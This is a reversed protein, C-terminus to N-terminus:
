PRVQLPLGARGGVGVEARQLIGYGPGQHVHGLLAHHLGALGELETNLLADFCIAIIKFSDTM